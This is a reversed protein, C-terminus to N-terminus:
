RRSESGSVRHGFRQRVEHSHTVPDLGDVEFRGPTPRLLTTLIKITTTKGAGNPGLFAFIEGKGVEFSIQDVATLEGFRKVLNEVRIM